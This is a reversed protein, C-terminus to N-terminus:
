IAPSMELSSNVLENTYRSEDRDNPIASLDGVILNASLVKRISSLFRPAVTFIEISQDSQSDIGRIEFATKLDIKLDYLLL